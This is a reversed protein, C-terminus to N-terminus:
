RMAISRSPIQKDEMEKKAGEEGGQEHHRNRGSDTETRGRGRPMDKQEDTNIELIM